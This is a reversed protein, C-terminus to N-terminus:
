GIIVSSDALPLFDGSFDGRTMSVDGYIWTKYSDRPAEEAGFHPFPQHLFYKVHFHSLPFPSSNQPQKWLLSAPHFINTREECLVPILIPFIDDFHHRSLLLLLLVREREGERASNITPTRRSLRERKDWKKNVTKTRIKKLYPVRFFFSHDMNISNSVAAATRCCSRYRREDGVAGLVVVVVRPLYNM